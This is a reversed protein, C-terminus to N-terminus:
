GTGLGPWHALHAGARCLRRHYATFKVPRVMNENFKILRVQVAKRSDPSAAFIMAFLKDAVSRTDAEIMKEQRRNM